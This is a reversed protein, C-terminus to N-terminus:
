RWEYPKISFYAALKAALYRSRKRSSDTRFNYISQVAVGLEMALDKNDMNEDSMRQELVQLFKQLERDNNIRLERM